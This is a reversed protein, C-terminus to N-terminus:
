AKLLDFTLVHKFPTYGTLYISPGPLKPSAGRIQTYAHENRGPGIRISDGNLRYLLEEDSFLFADNVVPAPQVGQLSGGQRVNIEVALPVDDTGTASIHMEFSDGNDIIEAKYRLHCINTQERAERSLSYNERTIPKLSQDHIPQYYPGRLEQIFAYTNGEREFQDPEFQGKGFFASAFRVANIVAEGNRLSFWRNNKRHMITASLKNRRIHTIESLPFHKVYNDPPPAPEPLDNQLMPYELLAPLLAQDPEMSEVISAYQGNKDLISMYRLAFWYRHMTGNTNIDQRRSIETVVEFGPHLLYLMSDLNKRVPELLEERNLKEAMIVLANVSVANYITTSREQFQGEEDIDIGESLWLNIRDLFKQQPYLENIQALAASVVWRHNPTHVGGEAMGAGAKILFPKIIDAIETANAMLALKAATAAHHVVFGTDPPSNFNTTLLDINGEPSQNRILFDVAWRIRQILTSNLHFRSQSCVYGTVAHELLNAAAGSHYLMWQDPYSGFGRHNPDTIQKDLLSQLAKDHRHIISDIIGSGSQAAFGPAIPLSTLLMLAARRNIQTKM